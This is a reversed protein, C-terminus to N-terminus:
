TVPQPRSTQRLQARVEGMGPHGLETLVHEACRWTERAADLSGAAHQADALRLLIMAEFYRDGTERLLALAQQYCQVARGHDGRHHHAYGLSDWTEGAGRRNGIEQQLTLAQECYTLAQQYEGLHALHWGVANLTRAQGPRNGATRFIRLAQRDHPLADRHHGQRASVRALSRYTHAKGIEDGIEDFLQLAQRLHDEAEAYRGLWTQALALGRHSHAEASVDGLRHAAALAARQTDARHQWHGRRDFYATLTWALQWTYRDQGASVAQEITALLVAHEAVFWDLARRCDPLDAAPVEARTSATVIPERHPDLLLAAVHATDLYHDLLRQQAVRVQDTGLRQGQETAYLRVLDHMRYRGPQHEQILHAGVLRRLVARARSVPLAALRAVASLCIDPGAALGLLGALAAAGVPLAAFSCSLVARLNVALEGADLADLRSSADGLEEALAALTLGPDLAARAAVIGLALPLGACVRSLEAVAAPEAAARRDGLRDTLLRGAEPDTLVGLTLPRAGHASLLGALQHRSTVLVTCTDGGPLLPIVQASDRANDAVILMRRGAVLGRYLGAQAEVDEPIAAPHVGLVDLFGRLATAPSMPEGAPDFGRLNVWLQGDPFRDINDHAWRLALWTKGMGGTGGIASVVMPAHPGSRACLATSLAALERTRGTFASPPAPLQHPIVPRGAGLARRAAAPAALAPDANLVRLHLRQLAPGPDAGLEDALRQRLRQYLDLADARRGCRSLALMLQGTLREDLPHAAILRPSQGVVAAHEGRSLQFDNHDLEAALRLAELAARVTNLWPTDLGAFADGRWLGLAQRLLDAATDEDAARAQTVLHQFRHLDVALPDVTLVYGGRQHAIGAGTAPALIQRLRSLYSRLTSGARQPRRDAWVRHLLQETPVVRNADVLLAALVCRQRVHGVDIPRGSVELGIDGLLRFEVM